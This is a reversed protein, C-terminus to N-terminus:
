CHEKTLYFAKEMEFITKVKKEKRCVKQYSLVKNTKRICYLEFDITHVSNIRGFRSCEIQDLM